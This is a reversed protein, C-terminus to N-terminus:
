ARSRSRDGRRRRMCGAFVAALVLGRAGPEPASSQMRCGCGDSGAGASSAPRPSASSVPNTAPMTPTIVPPDSPFSGIPTSTPAPRTANWDSVAKEIASKNDEIPTEGSESYDIVSLAWPMKDTFSPWAGQDDLKVLLGDPLTVDGGGGGCSSSAVQRQSVPALDPRKLFQPDVTMEEPSIETYLRTLYPYKDLLENAHRGPTVIRELLDRGFMAGDWKTQDMQDSYCGLCSYFGLEDVGKPAPIYQRLLGLLLPSAFTCSGGTCVALGQMQLEKMAADPALSPFRSPDWRSDYVGARPVVSSPGAYETVFAHGGAEDVARSIVEQYNDAFKVWDFRVPNPVVHEYNSPVVRGQDLFFARVGMDPTAAVRTLELPVCAGEGRDKYRVVLPHIEDLGVGGTLKVAAFVFGKGVYGDLVEPASPAAAFGNSSLWTSVESGSGGSLVVIDLAGVTEHLEIRVGPADPPRLAGGGGNIAVRCTGIGYMPVTAGLLNGFLPQSGVSMSDPVAPLPLVWAFKEPDGQYQIQIHAEVYGGDVVFLINEGKQDVPVLRARDCFTGGCASAGPSALALAAGLAVGAFVHFHRM